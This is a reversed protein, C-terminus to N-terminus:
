KDRRAGKQWRQKMKEMCEEKRKKQEKNKAKEKM